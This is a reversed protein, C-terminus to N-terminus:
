LHNHTNSVLHCYLAPKLPNYVELRDARSVKQQQAAALGQSGVVMNATVQNAATVAAASNTDLATMMNGGMTQISPSLYPFATANQM